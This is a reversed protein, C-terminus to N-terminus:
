SCIRWNSSNTVNAEFIDSLIAAMFCPKAMWIAALNSPHPRFVRREILRFGYGEFVKLYEQFLWLDPTKGTKSKLMRGLLM